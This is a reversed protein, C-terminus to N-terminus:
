PWLYGRLPRDSSRTSSVPMVPASPESPVSTGVSNAATVRFTYTVGGTLGTVVIPSRSFTATVNGPSATVTYTAIPSLGQNVPPTFSVVAKQVGAVATVAAPPDPLAPSPECTYIAFNDVAWGFGTVSYRYIPPGKPTPWQVFAGRAAIRFRFRLAHGALQDLNLRTGTYGYSWRVFATFPLDATFSLDRPSGNYTQGDDFLARADVWGEGDMSYELVGYDYNAYSVWEYGFDFAQDFYLRGGPPITVASAMTLVHTSATELRNRARCLPREQCLEIEAAMHWARHERDVLERSGDRVYRQFAGDARRRDPVDIACAQRHLLAM